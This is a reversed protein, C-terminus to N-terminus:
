TQQRPGEDLVGLRERYEETSLEGRAYRENLIARSRSPPTASGPPRSPRALTWVALGALVFLGVVLLGGVLWMWSGGWWMHGDWPGFTADRQALILLNSVMMM